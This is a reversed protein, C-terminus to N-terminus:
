ATHPGWLPARTWGPLGSSLAASDGRPDAPRPPSVIPSRGSASRPDGSLQVRGVFVRPSPLLPRAAPERSRSAMMPPPPPSHGPARGLNGEARTGSDERIRGPARGLYFGSGAGLARPARGRDERFGVRSAGRLRGQIGLLQDKDRHAGRPVPCTGRSDARTREAKGARRRAWRRPRM